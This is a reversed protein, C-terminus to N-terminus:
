WRSWLLLNTRGCAVQTVISGMLEFVKRPNIEHSTSNHGLQGYGGAGFTFVGGEKTLAATHDEGCCIYVIKQSRLSKLLNPVYRDNEDNLGLQGFKNRGWGFIAGSLTLVFSHAGGAAVQMFPIGLLSKILQPSTQKKCDIGLGLQGYKNQGWCFVESAKSLALSHYYGCAVQVIQIDSLSKINRPVRICEESGLLGLQGDSDLGWAYVQGKDNLALTHAEGCSVAIINQADLAVVQEPKKRSKEHGLQGLDNCGCTYVTGDDLVFVTHRLGCGVDRVKKNAFFDCKRPELVIEEDIGGLGLQGYSANGWCLM